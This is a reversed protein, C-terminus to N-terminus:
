YKAIAQLNELCDFNFHFQEQLEIDDYGDSSLAFPVNGNGDDFMGALYEGNVEQSPNRGGDTYSEEETATSNKQVLEQFFLSRLLLSLATPSSTKRSVM